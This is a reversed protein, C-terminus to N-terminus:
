GVAVALFFIDLGHDIVKWYVLLFHGDSLVPAFNLLLKVLSLSFLQSSILLMLNM